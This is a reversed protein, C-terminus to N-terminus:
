HSRESTVCDRFSCLRQIGATAPIVLLFL